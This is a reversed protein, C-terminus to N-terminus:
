MRVPRMLKNIGISIHSFEQQSEERWSILKDFSDRMNKHSDKNFGQGLHRAEAGISYSFEGVDEMNNKKFICKTQEQHKCRSREVSPPFDAQPIVNIARRDSLRVTMERDRSLSPRLVGSLFYKKFYLKAAAVKFHRDRM